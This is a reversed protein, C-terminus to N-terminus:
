ASRVDLAQLGRRRAATLLAADRSALAASRRMALDLYIADFLSLAETRALALLGGLDAGQEALSVQRVQREVLLLGADSMEANSLGRRELRVLANRLEFSLMEPAEFSRNGALLDDAARSAQSPVIWSVAVLTDVIVLM